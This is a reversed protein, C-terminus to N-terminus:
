IGSTIKWDNGERRLTIQDPDSAGKFGGNAGADVMQYRYSFYVKVKAEDKEHDFEIKRVDLDLTPSSITKFDEPLTKVLGAYDYDDSPDPTGRTDYYSKSLLKLVANADRHEVANKYALIVDLIAKNDATDELDTGPIQRHICAAFGLGSAVVVLLSVWRRM